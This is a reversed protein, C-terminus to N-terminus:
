MWYAPSGRWLAARCMLWLHFTSHSCWTHWSHRSRKHRKHHPAQALAGVLMMVGCRRPTSVVSPANRLPPHWIQSRSSSAQQAFSTAVAPLARHPGGGAAAGAASGCVCSAPAFNCDFVDNHLAALAHWSSSGLGVATLGHALTYAYVFPREIQLRTCVRWDGYVSTVLVASRTRSRRERLRM